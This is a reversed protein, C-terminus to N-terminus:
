TASFYAEVSDIISTEQICFVVCFVPFITKMIFIELVSHVIFFGFLM